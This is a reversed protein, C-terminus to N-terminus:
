CSKHVTIKFLDRIDTFGICDVYGSFHIEFFFLFYIFSHNM